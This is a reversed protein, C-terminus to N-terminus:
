PHSSYCVRKQFARPKIPAEDDDIELSWITRDKFYKVLECDENVDMARAWVVKSGDIDADNYVWERDYSHNPGYKVLVLHLGDQRKLQALFRARQLQPALEDRNRLTQWVHVSLVTIALLPMVYLLYKKIRPGRRRWLRMAQLIFFYNLPVIPAFYHLNHYTELMIGLVFFGYTVVAFRAWDNNWCYSILDRFSGVIAIAYISGALLLYMSLAALNIGMFGSFSQKTNYTPVGHSLHFERITEHNYHPVPRLPQWVFNPVFAYTAEHVQYPLRLADGTISFNYFAMGAATLGIVFLLPMFILKFSVCLPPGNPSILGYLLALAVPVSVLLGEYPRSNALIALGIGLRLAATMRPERIVSRLGGFILAWGTAGVAGGWYSQAWDGAIGFEPHIIALFGGLLAWPKPIWELLMWFIAACMFGMSLWVGVIPYGTVWQGVALVLGQAPPYKSMYTPQHIIHMSEFHIWLPHTPNTIRGHSLTDAALLHGFEDQSYPAPIGVLWGVGASGIFALMGILLLLPIKSRFFNSSM